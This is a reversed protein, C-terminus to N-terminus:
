RSFDGLLGNIASPVGEAKKHVAGAGEADLFDKGGARGRKATGDVAVFGGVEEGLVQVGVLDEDHRALLFCKKAELRGLTSERGKLPHNDDVNATCGRLDNKGFLAFGGGFEGAEADAGDDQGLAEDGVM